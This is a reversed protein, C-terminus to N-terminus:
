KTRRTGALRGCVSSWFRWSLIRDPVERLLSELMSENHPLCVCRCGCHGNQAMQLPVVIVDHIGGGSSTVGCSRASHCWSEDDSRWAASVASRMTRSEGAVGYTDAM